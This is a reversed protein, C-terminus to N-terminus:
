AFADDSEPYVWVAVRVRGGAWDPSVEEVVAERGPFGLAGDRRSAIRTTLNLTVVDLIALQALRLGVCRMVLREPVRGSSEEVRAHQENCIPGANAHARDRVDYELTESQPLTAATSASTPWSAGSNALLASVQMFTYEPLHSTEFAEYDEFAAVDRDTITIGSHYPATLSDQVARITLLGQRVALVMAGAALWSELWGYGDEVRATQAYQWAYTGSSVVMVTDRYAEIDDHDILDDSIGLGDSRVDWPGNTGDRSAIIQRALDLPHGELYAVDAVVDGLASTVATTGLLGSTLGTFTTATTGTYSLYFPDGSSPTILVVGLGDFMDFGATSTVFLTGDGPTYALTLITTNGVDAFLYNLGRTVELTQRFASYLDYVQIVWAPPTGTINRVQGIAITEFDVASWGQFGARLRVITGRTLHACIEALDGAVEVSWAGITSTWARAEVTSGQASLGTLLLGAADGLGPHSGVSWAVQPEHYVEYVELLLCLSRTRNELETLFAASWAM